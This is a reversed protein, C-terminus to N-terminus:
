NSFQITDDAKMIISIVTIVTVILEIKGRVKIRSGAPALAARSELLEGILM